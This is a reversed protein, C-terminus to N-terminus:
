GRRGSVLELAIQLAAKARDDDSAELGAEAMPTHALFLAVVALRARLQQVLSAQPDSVLGLLSQVREAFQMGVGGRQLASQNQQSLRMFPTWRDGAFAALRRILERKTKPTRPQGQGWALLEDLSVVLDGVISTLIEEKARFHYYLAPRTVGVREAIERLTTETYGREVFLELAAKQIRDRTDTRRGDVAATARSANLAQEDTM